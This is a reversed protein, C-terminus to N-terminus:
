KKKLGFILLWLSVTWTSNQFESLRSRSYLDERIQAHPHKRSLKKM